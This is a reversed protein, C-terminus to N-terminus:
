SAVRKRELKRDLSTTLFFDGPVPEDTATEPEPARKSLSPSVCSQETREAADGAEM